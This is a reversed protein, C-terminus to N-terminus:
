RDTVRDFARKINFALTSIIEKDFITKEIDHTFTAVADVASHRPTAGFYFFNFLKYKLGIYFSYRVM